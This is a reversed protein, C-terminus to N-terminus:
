KKKAVSWLAKLIIMNLKNPILHFCLNTQYKM